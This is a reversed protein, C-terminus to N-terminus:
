LSARLWAGHLIQEALLASPDELAQAKGRRWSVGAGARYGGGAEGVRSVGRGLRGDRWGEHYESSKLLTRSLM